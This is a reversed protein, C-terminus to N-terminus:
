RGMGSSLGRRTLGAGGRGDSRRGMGERGRGHGVQGVFRGTELREADLWMVSRVEGCRGPLRGVDGRGVGLWDVGVSRVTGYRRGAM